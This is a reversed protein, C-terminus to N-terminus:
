ITERPIAALPQWGEVEENRSAFGEPGFGCSWLMLCVHVFVSAWLASFSLTRRSPINRKGGALPDPPASQPLTTLEGTSNPAFGRSGPEKTCIM